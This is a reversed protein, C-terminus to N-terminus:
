WKSYSVAAKQKKVRFVIDASGYRRDWAAYSQMYIPMGNKYSLVNREAELYSGAADGGVFGDYFIANRYAGCRPIDRDTLEHVQM